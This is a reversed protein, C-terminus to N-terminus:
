KLLLANIQDLTIVGALEIRLRIQHNDAIRHRAPIRAHFRHQFFVNGKHRTWLPQMVKHQAIAPYQRDGTGVAFGRGCAHRGPYQFRAPVFRAEHDAAYRAVKLNGRAQALAREKNDFRILVVAREKIFTRFKHMVARTRQDEVVKLKIMGVDEVIQFRDLLLEVMQHADHRPQPADDPRFVVDVQFLGHRQAAPALLLQHALLSVPLRLLQSRISGLPFHPQVAFFDAIHFPAQDAFM